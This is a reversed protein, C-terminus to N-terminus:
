RLSTKLNSVTKPRPHERFSAGPLYFPGHRHAMLLGWAFSAIPLGVNYILSAKVPSAIFLSLYVMLLAWLFAEQRPTVNGTCAWVLPLLKVLLWGSLFLYLIVGVLGYQFAVGLLGLDGPWFWGFLDQYSQSQASDQGFGLLPYEWFSEWAKQSQEVRSNYSQDRGFASIFANRVSPVALVTAAVYIPLMIVALKAREPRSLAVAYVILALGASALLARPITAVLLVITSVLVVLDFGQLLIDKTQWLRRGFYLALFLMMINLRRVAGGQGGSAEDVNSVFFEGSLLFSRPAFVVDFIAFGVLSMVAALLFVRQFDPLGWGRLHLMYVVPGLLFFAYYRQGAISPFLPVDDVRTTFTYAYLLVFFTLGLAPLLVYLSWRSDMRTLYALLCFLVLVSVIGVNETHLVPYFRLFGFAGLLSALLLIQAWLPKRLRRFRMTHAPSM